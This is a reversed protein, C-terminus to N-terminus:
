EYGYASLDLESVYEYTMQARNQYGTAYDGCGAATAYEDYFVQNLNQLNAAIDRGIRNEIFLGMIYTSTPGWMGAYIVCRADTLGCDIARQAYTETDRQLIELQAAQGESSDLLASLEDLEGASSIDNYTRGAFKSGGPIDNILEDFRGGEVQQCGGSPYDGATSCSVSGFGGEIGTNVLGLAIEKGLEQITM